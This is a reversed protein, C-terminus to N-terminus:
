ANIRIVKAPVGVAVGNSPVDDLVVAGAGIQANDGIIVPGLISAGVGIIVNSGIIPSSIQNGCYIRKKGMNGGLTVNQLIIANENIHVNRNIVIGLGNHSFTVTPHINATFPIDCAFIIRNVIWLLKPIFPVKKLYMKRSYNFIRGVMNTKM